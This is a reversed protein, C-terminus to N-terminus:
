VPRNGNCCRLPSITKYQVKQVKYLSITQKDRDKIDFHAPAEQGQSLPRNSVELINSTQHEVLYDKM